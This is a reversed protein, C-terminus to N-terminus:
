KKRRNIPLHPHNQLLIFKTNPVQLYSLQRIRGKVVNKAMLARPLGSIPLEEGDVIILSITTITSETSVPLLVKGVEFSSNMTMGQIIEQTIIIKVSESSSDKEGISFYPQFNLTTMNKFYDGLHRLEQSASPFKCRIEAEFTLKTKSCFLFFKGDYVYESGQLSSAPLGLYLSSAVLRRAIEGIQKQFDARKMIQHMRRRLSQLKQVDDPAPPDEMLNPNMRWYRKNVDEHGRANADSMFDLWRIETDFINEVQNKMINVLQTSKQVKKSVDQQARGPDSVTSMQNPHFPTSKQAERGTTSNCCTGITLM